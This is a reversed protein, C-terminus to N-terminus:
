PFVQISGQGMAASGGVSLTFTSGGSFTAAITSSSFSCLDFDYYELPGAGTYFIRVYSITHAPPVPSTTWAASTAFVDVSIMYPTAYSSTVDPTACSIPSFNNGYVIFTFNGSSPDASNIFHFDNVQANGFLACLILSLTLFAQKMFYIGNTKYPITFSIHRKLLM